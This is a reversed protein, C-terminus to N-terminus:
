ARSLAREFLRRIRKWGDDHAPADFHDRGRHAFGHGVGPYVVIELPQEGPAGAHRARLEEVHSLAVYEDHEGFLAVTPCRRALVADMPHEPHLDNLVETRLEGYWSVAAALGRCHASALFACAGGWCYGILGIPRGRVAPDMALFDIAAQIDGVIQADPVARMFAKLDPNAIDSAPQRRSYLDVALGAYGLGALEQAVGIAHEGFGRGDHLVIVGPHLGGDPVLYEGRIRDGNSTLDVRM